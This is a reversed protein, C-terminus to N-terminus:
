GGHVKNEGEIGAGCPHARDGEVVLGPHHVGGVPLQALVEGVGALDLVVGGLDGVQRHRRQAVDGGLGAVRAVVHDGDADGVLALRGDGEVALAAMEGVAGEDPLVPARGRDALLELGAAM